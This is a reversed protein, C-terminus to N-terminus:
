RARQQRQELHGGALQRRQGIGVQPGVGLDGLGLGRRQGGPEGRLEGRHVEGPQERRPHQGLVGAVQSGEYGGGVDPRAGPAAQGTAGEGWRPCRGGGARDDQRDVVGPLEAGPRVAVEGGQRQPELAHRGRVLDAPHHDVGGFGAARQGRQGRSRGARLLHQAAGQVGRGWWCRLLGRCLVGTPGLGRGGLQSLLEVQRGPDLPRLLRGARDRVHRDESRLHVGRQVPTLRLHAARVPEGVEVEGRRVPDRCPQARPHHLAVLLLEHLGGPGLEALHLAGVPRDGEGLEGLQEGTPQVGPEGPQGGGPQQLDGAGQGGPDVQGFAGRQARRDGAAGGRGGHEGAREATGHPGGARHQGGGAGGGPVADPREDAGPAGGAVEGAAVAVRVADTVQGGPRDRDEVRGPHRLRQRYRLPLDLLVEAGGGARELATQDRVERVGGAPVRGSGARVQGEAGGAPPGRHQQAGGRNGSHLRHALLAGRRQDGLQGRRLDGRGEVQVLHEGVPRLPQVVAQDGAERHRGPGDAGAPARPATDVDDGAARDSPGHGADVHVARWPPSGPPRVSQTDVDAPQADAAQGGEPGVPEGPDGGPGRRGAAALRQALEGPQGRVREARDQLPHLGYGHAPQLGGYRRQEVGPM